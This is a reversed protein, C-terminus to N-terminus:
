SSLLDTCYDTYIRYCELVNYRFIEMLDIREEEIQTKISLLQECTKEMAGALAALAPTSTPVDKQRQALEDALATVYRALVSRQADSSQALQQGQMLSNLTEEWLLAAEIVRGVKDASGTLKLSVADSQLQAAYYERGLDGGRSQAQEKDQWVSDLVRYRPKAYIVREGEGCAAQASELTEYAGLQVIWLNYGKLDLTQSDEEKAPTSSEGPALGSPATLSTASPNNIVAPSTIITTNPATGKNKGWWLALIAVALLAVVIWGPAGVPGKGPKGRRPVRQKFTYSGKMM